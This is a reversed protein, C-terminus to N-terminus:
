VVPSLSLLIKRLDSYLPHIECPTYKKWEEMRDEIMDERLQSASILIDSRDVRHITLNKKRVPSFWNEIKEEKGSVFLDPEKKESELITKFLYEGWQPVNGVGIDPLPLIQVNKPYVLSIMKKREEFSFPNGKTRMKDSSGVLVITKKAFKISDDILSKHGNHFIQFRGVVFGLDFVKDEM